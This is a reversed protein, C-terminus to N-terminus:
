FPVDDITQDNFSQDEAPFSPPQEASQTKQQPKWDDVQAYIKGSKSRKIQVNVWGDSENMGLFSTLEDVKLSLNVLVWEPAQASRKCIMGNVFKPENSM